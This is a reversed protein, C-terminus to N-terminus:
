RRAAQIDGNEIFWDITDKITETFSRPRYGLDHSAHSSDIRPNSQLWNLTNRTYIPVGSGAQGNSLPTFRAVLPMLPAAMWALGMPVTIIPAATGTFTSVTAAMDRISRWHGSILYREGSAANAAAQIATSAVDRVDVWDFGGTVLAPIRGQALMIVAQGFYSPKFDFPGIIATPNLIIADLGKRMGAQVEKEAAAKSRDYAPFEPSDALPRTEDVPSDLPQTQLAQVSSFYVLRSVHCNLCAEVVNRTGQVNVAELVSWNDAQLSILGALHYVIDVGTFARCLSDVDLVDGQVAEVPLRRDKRVIARVDQGRGLLARVLNGGVLGSAGTVVNMPKAITEQRM